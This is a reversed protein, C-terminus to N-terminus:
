RLAPREAVAVREEYYEMGKRLEAEIDRFSRAPKLLRLSATRPHRETAQIPIGGLHEAATCNFFPSKPGGHNLRARSARNWLEDVPEVNEETPAVVRRIAVRATKSVFEEM